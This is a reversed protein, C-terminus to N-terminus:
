KLVFKVNVSANVRIKAFDITPAGMKDGQIRTEGYNLFGRNMTNSASLPGALADDVIHIANGVQQGLEATFAVATAKANRIARARCVNRISALETHNVHSISANSLGLDELKMFVKSAMGADGVKLIYEKSKLIDKKKLLYYRYNSLMDSSTLNKQVDIGLSILGDIFRKEMVELSTRDRDDKESITIEIFIENPTVLSDAFGSVELYSQDLFNKEQSYVAICSVILMLISLAKKM